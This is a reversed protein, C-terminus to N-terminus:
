YWYFIVSIEAGGLIFSGGGRLSTDLFYTDSGDPKIYLQGKFATMYSFNGKLRLNIWESIHLSVAADVHIYQGWIHLDIYTAKWNHVDINYSFVVPSYCTFLQLTFLSLPTWSIQAGVYFIYYNQQYTIVEGEWSYYTPYEREGNRGSMYIHKFNFGIFPAFFLDDNNLISYGFNTDAFFAEKLINDHHSYSELNGTYGLSETGWDRDEMRGLPGPIGVWFGATFIWSKWMEAQITIGTYVLPNLQWDLRSLTDNYKGDNENDVFVYEYLMGFILGSDVSMSLSLWDTDKTDPPKPLYLAHQAQLPFLICLLLILMLVRIRM